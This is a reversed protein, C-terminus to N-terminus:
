LIFIYFYNKKELAIWHKTFLNIKLLFVVFDFCILSINKYSIQTDEICQDRYFVKTEIIMLESVAKINEYFVYTMSFQKKCLYM